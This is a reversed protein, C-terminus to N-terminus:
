TSASSVQWGSNLGNVMCLRIYFSSISALWFEFEIQFGAQKAREIMKDKQREGLEGGFAILRRTTNWNQEGNIYRRFFGSSQVGHRFERQIAIGAESAM